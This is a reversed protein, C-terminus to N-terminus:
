VPVAFLSRRDASRAIRPPGGYGRATGSPPREQPQLLTDHRRLPDLILEHLTETVPRGTAREIVLGALVYNASNYEWKEGAAGHASALATARGIRSAAGTIFAVKGTFSGDGHNMQQEGDDRATM